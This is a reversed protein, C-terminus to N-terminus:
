SLRGVIMLQGGQITPLMSPGSGRVPLIGFTVLLAAAAVLVVVRLATRAPNAGVLLRAIGEAM